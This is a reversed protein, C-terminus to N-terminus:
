SNPLSFVLQHTGPALVAEEIVPEGNLSPNQHRKGPRFRGICGEPLTLVYTVKNGDCQWGAEIRGQNIDHYASVPSLSPIPAPDVIVEAFGPASPSPSIGAVSEFLWQCVAGYAYHNYSNMDPEYITGDPAMSDWREWITTAGKSVQYLWGPVDEQLFVKEALDDMGLKTLAPLLAPTGIFGTGIKYHADIIVQRFHQQAAQRHEAPILDHLFALAYSTQDNHALRGAPTIFENAFTLRIENVRQKIKEELVHEGLTAAIMALLDTSIFHYLTAACDDAITPRPKRNDGVPQLWDGFTFGRDGWRSPPRVLPGDSISWVFDVWRVMSDLCEALVARDGYHTYLVWPIVVIADGWGTSGAYGPFNAPHLRTPDPSFHSVAGDERQDAMVDRLYKRLFSQSDSLWCATAAFVQADGTWGLREDRQPCDTPVEVFNARQSWITNEVLRNVLANGSTFGGAPESVSSIPISAIALIKADGKITVRAYRFGHFTFHPAYTEDGDGRLTYVTHAAATRYNRNDFHRDPGLVESHEVRVEAGAAGRVTYRVYGGANQGFDYVTRGEDDTWSDVPALPLLERVAATEHAVLLARDFPLKETGHTEICNEQRADYIEGFYIGSKLVPLLGSRWTTDTSLVTGDPGILDAIAGIRDGWCNPIAQAGWMLPSRYWGDALWIEIRNLGPKLLNSVDYRQYALRDDYNTWGPTLLDGGVRVGNIFCRYLGLASIFLDVPLGSGDHEFTQSVFSAATGQGGDSLPAIMDGSWTRSVLNGSIAAPQFNM